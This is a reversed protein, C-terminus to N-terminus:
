GCWGGGGGEGGEGEGKEGKRGGLGVWGTGQGLDWVWHPFPVSHAPLLIHADAHKLAQRLTALLFFFAVCYCPMFAVM